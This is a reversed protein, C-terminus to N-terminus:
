GYPILGAQRLTGRIENQLDQLKSSIGASRCVDAAHAIALDLTVLSVVSLEWRARRRLTDQFDELWPMMEALEAYAAADTPSLHSSRTSPTTTM